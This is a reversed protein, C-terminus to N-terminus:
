WSSRDSKPNQVLFSHFTLRPSYHSFALFTQLQAVRRSAVEHRCCLALACSRVLITSVPSRWFGDAIGEVVQRM